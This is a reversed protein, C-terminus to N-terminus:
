FPCDDINIDSFSDDANENNGGNKKGGFDVTNAVVEVAKRKNGNKDEYTRTQLRGNIVIMDGKGFWKGVFDATGRWAVCDVFDTQQEEGHKPRNCAISFSCVSIGSATSKVEPTATLRGMICINNLM